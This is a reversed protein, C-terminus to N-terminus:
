KKIKKNHIHYKVISNMPPIKPSDKALKKLFLKKWSVEKSFDSSKRRSPTSEERPVSDSDNDVRRSGNEKGVHKSYSYVSYGSM